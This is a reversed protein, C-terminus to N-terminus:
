LFRLRAYSYIPPSLYEPPEEEPFPDRQPTLPATMIEEDEDDSPESEYDVEELLPRRGHLGHHEDEDRIALDNTLVVPRRGRVPFDAEGELIIPRRHLFTRRMEPNYLYERESRRRRYLVLALIGIALCLIALLIAPIVTAFLLVRGSQLTPNVLRITSPSTPNTDSINCPGTIQPEKTPIFPDLSSIFAETYAGNSFISDFWERFDACNLDSISLNHYTVAISGSSFSGIYVDNSNPNGFSSLAMLLVIKATLNQNFVEFEGEFFVTLFSEFAEAAPIVRITVLDHAVGGADDEARLLFVHDTLSSSLVQDRLPIGEIVAVNGSLYRLQIWTTNPLPSGRLDLLSLSLQDTTGSELDYFTDDPILFQFLQGENTLITGVPNLVFPSLNIPTPTPTPAPTFTSSPTPTPAFTSLPTVPSSVSTSIIVTQVSSSAVMTTTMPPVVACEFFGDGTNICVTDDKCPNPVCPDVVVECLPGTFGISCTCSFTAFLNNCTANNMCLNIDCENIDESCNKGTFGPLCICTYTSNGDICSEAGVPDCPSSQSDDFCYDIDIDCFQGTWGVYCDCLFDEGLDM